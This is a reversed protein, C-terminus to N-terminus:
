WSLYKSHGARLITSMPTARVAHKNSSMTTTMAMLTAMRIMATAAILAIMHISMRSAMSAPASKDRGALCLQPMAMGMAATTDMEMIMVADARRITNTHMVIITAAIAIM